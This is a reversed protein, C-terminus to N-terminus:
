PTAPIRLETGPEIALTGKGVGNAAAIVYWLQPDGYFQNAILDLRDGPVTQVYTDRPTKPYSQYIKAKFGTKGTRTDYINIPNVRM